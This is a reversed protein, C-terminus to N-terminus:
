GAAVAGVVRQARSAAAAPWVQAVPENRLAAWLGNSLSARGLIVVDGTRLGHGADQTWLQQDVSPAEVLTPGKAGFVDATVLVPGLAPPGGDWRPTVAVYGVVCRLPNSRGMPPAGVVAALGDAAETTSGPLVRRFHRGLCFAETPRWAETRGNIPLAGRGEGYAVRPAWIALGGALHRLMGEGEGDLLAWDTQGGPSVFRM